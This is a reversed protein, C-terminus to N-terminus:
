PNASVQFTATGTYTGTAQGSTVDVKFEVAADTPSSSYTTDNM